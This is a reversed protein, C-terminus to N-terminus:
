LAVDRVGSGGRGHEEVEMEEITAQLGIKFSVHVLVDVSLDQSGDPEGSEDEIGTLIYNAFLINSLIM